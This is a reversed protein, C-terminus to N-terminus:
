DSKKKSKKKKSKKPETATISEVIDSIVSTAVPETVTKSGSVKLPGIGSGCGREHKFSGRSHIDIIDGDGEAGCRTCRLMILPLFCQKFINIFFLNQKNRLVLTLSLFLESM